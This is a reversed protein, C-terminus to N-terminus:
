SIKGSATKYAPAYSVGEVKVYVYGGARLKHMSKVRIAAKSAYSTAELTGNAVKKYTTKGKAKYWVSVRAGSQYDPAYVNVNFSGNRNSYGSIWSDNRSNATHAYVSFNQSVSSRTTEGQYYGASSYKRETVPVKLSYRGPTTYRGVSLSAKNWQNAYVKKSDVRPRIVNASKVGPNRKLNAMKVYNYNTYYYNTKNSGYVYVKGAVTRTGSTPQKSTSPFSDIKPNSFPAAQAPSVPGLGLGVVALLAVAGIGFKKIKKM